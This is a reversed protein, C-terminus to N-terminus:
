GGAQARYLRALAQQLTRGDGRGRAVLVKAILSACAGGDLRVAAPLLPAEMMQTMPAEMARRRGADEIQAPLIAGIRLLRQVAVKPLQALLGRSRGGEGTLVWDLHAQWLAVRQPWSIAQTENFSFWLGPPPKLRYIWTSNGNGSQSRGRSGAPGMGPKRIFLELNNEYRGDAARVALSEGSPMHSLPNELDDLEAYRDFLGAVELGAAAIAGLWHQIGLRAERPHLFTDAFRGDNPMTGAGLQNLRLALVPAEAAVAQLIDRALKLDVPDFRDIALLPAALLRQLHHIWARAPSNYVMLRLTGGPALARGIAQLTQGPNRMHHLVGYADIHAFSGAPAQALYADLDGQLFRTSKSTFLTRWRARRTSRRSLDISIVAKGRPEWKRIIYPLIEGGGGILVTPQAGGALPAEGGAVCVAFRSHTLYGDQWRPTALLPYCPYPYAEYLARVSSLIPLLTSVM